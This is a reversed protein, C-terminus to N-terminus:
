GMTVVDLARGLCRQRPRHRGALAFASQEVGVDVLQEGVHGLLLEGEQDGVLVGQEVHRRVVRQEEASGVVGVVGELGVSLLDPVGEAVQAPEPVDLGGVDLQHGHM